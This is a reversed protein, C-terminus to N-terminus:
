MKPAIWVGIKSTAPSSSLCKSLGWRVMWSITCIGLGFVVSNGVLEISIPVTALPSLLLSVALVSIWLNDWIVHSSFEWHRETTYCITQLNLM